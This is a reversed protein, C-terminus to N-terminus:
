LHFPYKNKEIIKGYSSLTLDKVFVSFLINWMKKSTLCFYNEWTILVFIDMVAWNTETIRELDYISMAPKSISCFFFFEKIPNNNKEKFLHWQATCFLPSDLYFIVSYNVTFIASVEEKRPNINDASPNHLSKEHLFCVRLCIENKQLRFYFISLLLLTTLHTGCLGMDVSLQSAQVGTGALDFM